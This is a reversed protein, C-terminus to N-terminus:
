WMWSKVGYENYIWRILEDNGVAKAYSYIAHVAVYDGNDKLYKLIDMDGRKAAHKSIIWGYNHLRISCWKRKIREVSLFMSSRWPIRVLHKYVLQISVRTARCVSKWWLLDDVQVFKTIYVVIELPLIMDNGRLEIEM